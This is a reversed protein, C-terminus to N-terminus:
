AAPRDGDPPLRRLRSKCVKWGFIGGVMLAPLAAYYAVELGFWHSTGGLHAWGTQLLISATIAGLFMAGVVLVFAIGIAFLMGYLVIGVSRVFKRQHATVTDM